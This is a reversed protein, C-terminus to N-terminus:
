DNRGGANKPDKARVNQLISSTVERMYSIVEREVEDEFEKLPKGLKEEVVFQRVHGRYHDLRFIMGQLIHRDAPCLRAVENEIDASREFEAASTVDEQLVEDAFDSGLGPLLRELLAGFRAWERRATQDAVEVSRSHGDSNIVVVKTADLGEWVRRRIKAIINSKRSVAEDVAAVVSFCNPFVRSRRGARPKASSNDNLQFGALEAARIPDHFAPSAPDELYRRFLHQRQIINDTLKATSHYSDPQSSAKEKDMGEM